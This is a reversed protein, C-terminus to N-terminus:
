ASTGKSLAPLPRSIEEPLDPIMFQFTLEALLELGFAREKPVTFNTAGWVANGFAVSQVARQVWTFLTSVADDQAGEDNANDGDYAWVSVVMSRAWDSLPRVTYEPVLPDAGVERLGVQRPNVIKGAAGSEPSGMFVVRNAQGGGQNLQEARAKWGRAVSATVGRAALYAAVGDVLQKVPPIFVVPGSM